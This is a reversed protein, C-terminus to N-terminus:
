PGTNTTINTTTSTADDPPSPSTVPPKPRSLRNLLAVLPWTTLLPLTLALPRTLWWGLSIERALPAKRDILHVAALWIALGSTHLLYLGMANKTLLEKFRQWRERELRELLWPRLLLLLGTQLVVLAVIALSPPAMNSFKDGPVGVMSGPYIRSWVLAVLGFLGTWAMAAHARRPAKVLDAYFFGIQHALGWVFLMNLWGVYPVDHAFRAVDIAAALGAMWIPALYSWRDHLRLWLPFAAIVIAYTFAFWLPSLVLIVAGRLWGVDLFATIAILVGWWLAILAFAPALLDRLRDLVFGGLRVGKEQARRWAQLNAWGGVLFFLPMVQLVWTILWLGKTFGIPNTAHPGDERWELITFAWHWAVVVVLSAARVFDVFPDRAAGRGPEPTEDRAQTNETV